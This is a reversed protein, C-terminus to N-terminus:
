SRTDAPLPLCAQVTFRDEDSRGALLTGGYLSIRERMGILGHGGQEPATVPSTLDNVVCVQVSAGAYHIGVTTHAGAAHKCVNTLSEQIIRYAALDIGPPLPVSPGEVELDVPIGAARTDSILRPLQDLGPQPALAAPADDARLVGLLRRMEGMAQRSTAEVAELDVVEDALDASRRDTPRCRVAQTQITIVSLSHSVIDHLERAIRTREEAVAQREREGQQRRLDAAEELLQTLRVERRRIVYGVLWTGGYLVAVYAYDALMPGTATIMLWQFGVTMAPGWWTDPPDVYRGVTYSALMASLAYSVVGGPDNVLSYIPGLLMLLLLVPIPWRRRLGLPLTWLVTLGAQALQSTTAPDALAAELLGLVLLAFATAWDLASTSLWRTVRPRM